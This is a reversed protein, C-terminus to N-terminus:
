NALRTFNNENPKKWITTAVNVEIFCYRNWWRFIWLKCRMTHFAWPYNLAVTSLWNDHLANVKIKAWLDFIVTVISHKFNKIATVFIAKQHLLNTEPLVIHLFSYQPNWWSGTNRYVEWWALPLFIFKMKTHCLTYTLNCFKRHKRLQPSCTHNRLKSQVHVNHAMFM